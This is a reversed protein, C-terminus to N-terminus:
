CHEGYGYLDVATFYGPTPRNEGPNVCNPYPGQLAVAKNGCRNKASRYPNGFPTAYSGVKACEYYEIAGEFNIQNWICVFNAVCDATVAPALTPAEVPAEEASTPAEAPAEEASAISSTALMGLVCAACAVAAWIRRM